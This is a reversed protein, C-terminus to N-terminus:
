GGFNVIGAAVSNQIKTIGYAGVLLKPTAQMYVLSAARLLGNKACPARSMTLIAM